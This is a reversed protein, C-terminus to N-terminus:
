NTVLLKDNFLINGQNDIISIFYNGSILKNADISIKQGNIANHIVKAEILVGISNFIRLNGNPINNKLEIEIISKVPNQLLQAYANKKDSVKISRVNSYTSKGAEIIRLRYYIVKWDKLDNDIHSYVQQNIINNPMVEGVIVITEFNPSASKEVIYKTIGIENAVVWKTNVLDASYLVDFSILKVPTTCVVTSTNTHNKANTRRGNAQNPALKGRVAFWNEDSALGSIVVNTNATTAAVEMYKSGLKFVDYETAGPVAIWTIKSTGECVQTFSVNSPIGLIVFTTDSADSVGNRSIRIKASKSITNPVTWDYYRLYDSVGAAITNWTGGNNTTYDIDFADGSPTADWRIRQTELPAFSEGGFPYVVDIKDTYLYEYVVYYKQPGQPITAGNVSLTYTGSSPNDLQIQEVNNVNDIAKIAAANCSAKTPTTGINLFWPLTINNNNDTIQSNLNNVLAKTTGASAEFDSWYVMIKAIAVNTPINIIHTNTTGQTVSGTFYRNEEVCNVARRLNIRGFGYIFDPGENGLDDATNMVIAKMLAGEPNAGGFKNKYANYILALDGSIAPCAMSTGSFIAFDNDPQTSNVLDGVATIEPKIRGDPLPGRSSTPDIVDSKDLNGVTLVNKGAKFGGTINRFGNIGGCSSTGSNGSSHVYMLSPFTNMIEDSTQANSNYGSNCSQGLSHSVIRVSDDDYIGPFLTYPTYNDYARLDAGRAQGFVQPNFNGAGLIIGAVHDGHTNGASVDTANSLIRGTFDIHPGIYGDDGMAVVIGTGDIKKGTIWNDSTQIAGLRHNSVAAVDEIIAPHTIPEIYNVIPITAIKKLNELSTKLSIIGVTKSDIINYSIGLNNIATIIREASYEKIYCVNIKLENDSTVAWAIKSFDYISSHIKSVPLQRTVAYVGEYYLSEFNYSLPFSAIYTNEPIYAYFKIGSEIMMQKKNQTPIEKFQLWLFYKNDFICDAFTSQSNTPNVLPTINVFDGSHISVVAQSNSNLCFLIGFVLLSFLKKM